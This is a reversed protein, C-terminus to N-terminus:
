QWGAFAADRGSVRARGSAEPLFEASCAKRLLSLLKGNIRDDKSHVRSYKYINLIPGRMDYGSSSAAEGYRSIYAAFAEAEQLSAIKLSEQFLHPHTSAPQNPPCPRPPQPFTARFQPPNAATFPM